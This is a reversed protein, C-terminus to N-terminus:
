TSERGRTFSDALLMLCSQTHSLKGTVCLTLLHLEVDSGMLIEPFTVFCHTNCIHKAIYTFIPLTLLCVYMYTIYANCYRSHM